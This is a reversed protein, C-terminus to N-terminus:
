EELQGAFEEITVVGGHGGAILSVELGLAEITEALLQGGPGASEADPNPSYLDSVFVIGADPAYAIIMDEAHTQAINYIEVPQTEDALTYVDGVPATEIAAELPNEAMADPSLTAPRAFIGAFFDAATEHVVATAGNAVFQRLGAAHDEHHHTIVAHSVPKDPFTNAAWGLILDSRHGGLPTEVIVVGGAQEIALSHHSGGTLHYVGPALKTAALNTQVGDRIFGYHAFMQLYQHNAAGRAALAEDFVPDLGSPIVFLDGALQPNVTIASRLEKVVIEGDLAIYVEAPFALESEGIPQWGYYFVELAVDRRLPMEETTTAKALRGDGAHIYLTIPAADGPVQLRHYVAGDYLVEGADTATEPAALLDALILQPNLLRQQKLTSAWRDSLMASQMPQGFRGDQGDLYGVDGAVVEILSRPQGLTERTQDLRLAGNAVDYQVTVTYPGIRDAPGGATFGEDLVWRVGTADLSFTTLGQLAEEGGLAMVAKELPTAAPQLTGDQALLTATALCVLVLTM